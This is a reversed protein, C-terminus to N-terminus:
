KKKPPDKKPDPEKKPEDKAARIEKVAGEALKKLSEDKTEKIFRELDAVYYKAEAGMMALAGIAAAIVDADTQRLAAAIDGGVAKARPGLVGLANLAQVRTSIEQADAVQGAVIKINADMTRDDYMSQVLYLWVKVDANKELKLRSTIEDLYPKILTIYAAPTDAHPPGLTILAQTAEMRVGSAPDKLMRYILKDMAARSAQRKVVPPPPPTGAATKPPPKDDYLAGGIRSLTTCIALRTEWAPDDIISVVDGMTGIAEPGMSALTRCGHLRIMSGPVTKRMQAGIAAAITRMDEKTEYGMQGLTLMANIRVGPDPDDILKILDKTAAKRGDPGFGPIIRVATDRATPDPSKFEAMWEGLSKGSIQKPWEPPKDKDKDKGPTTPQTTAPPQGAPPTPPQQAAATLVLLAALAVGFAPRVPLM